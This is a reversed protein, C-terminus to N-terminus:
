DEIKDVQESKHICDKYLNILSDFFDEFQSFDMNQYHRSVFNSLYRKNYFGNSILEKGSRDFKLPSLKQNIYYTDLLDEIEIDNGNKRKYTLVYLNDVVNFYPRIDLKKKLEDDSLNAYEKDSVFKKSANYIHKLPSDKKFENDVLIIVPTEYVPCSKKLWPLISCRKSHNDKNGTLNYFYLLNTLRSGGEGCFGIVDNLKSQPNFFQINYKYKNGLFSVLQPYKTALSKLAAKLYVPDTKGECFIMIRDNKWLNKYTLFTAYDVVHSNWNEVDKIISDKYNKNESEAFCMHNDVSYIHQFRGELQNRTGRKGNITFKGNRYLSYAMSRTYKYYDRTVNIRKNVCIGTVTQRQNPHKIRTKKINPTFGARLIENYIKEIILSIEDQSYNVNTSFTIDDAYRTCSMRYKKAVNLLRYDLIRCILNSFLPSTPAGQPLENNFCILNAVFVSVPKKLQFANDKELYGLIRGFNISPFFDKIDICIITRKNKHWKANTCINRGKTFAHQIGANKSSKLDDTLKSLLANQVKKLEYCPAHIIRPTKDKKEIYFETYLKEEPICFLVNFLFTEDIDIYLALDRLNNLKSIEMFFM